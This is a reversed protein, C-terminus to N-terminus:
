HGILVANLTELLERNKGPTFTFKKMAKLLMPVDLDHEQTFSIMVDSLAEKLMEMPVREEIPELISAFGTFVPQGQKQTLSDLAFPLHVDNEVFNVATILAFEAITLLDNALADGTKYKLSKLLVDQLSLENRVIEWVRWHGDHGAETLALCRNKSLFRGFSNFHKIMDLLCKYSKSRSEFEFTSGSFFHWHEDQFCVWHGASNQKAELELSGVEQLIIRGAVPPWVTGAVQQTHPLLPVNV